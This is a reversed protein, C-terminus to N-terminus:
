CFKSFIMLFGYCNDVKPSIRSKTKERMKSESAFVEKKGVSKVKREIKGSIIQLIEAKFIEFIRPKKKKGERM